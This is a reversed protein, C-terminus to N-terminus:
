AVLRKPSNSTKRSSSALCRSVSKRLLTVVAIAAPPHAAMIEEGASTHRTRIDLSLASGASICHPIWWAGRQQAARPCALCGALRPSRPGCPAVVLANDVSCHPDGLFLARRGEVTSHHREGLAGHQDSGALDRRKILELLPVCLQHRGNCRGPTVAVDKHHPLVGASRWLRQIRMSHVWSRDALWRDSHVPACLGGHRGSEEVCRHRHRQLRGLIPHRRLLRHAQMMVIMDAAAGGRRSGARLLGM